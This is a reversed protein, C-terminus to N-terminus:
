MDPRNNKSLAVIHPKDEINTLYPWCTKITEGNFGFQTLLAKM